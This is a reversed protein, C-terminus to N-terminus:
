GRRRERTARAAWREHWEKFKPQDPLLARAQRIASEIESRPNRLYDLAKALDFWCWAKRIPDDSLQIARYLLEASERNLRLRISRDRASRALGLKTQAFEHVVKPDDPNLTYALTFLRHAGELDGTRKKLVAAEVTDDISQNPPIRNLIEAAEKNRDRNILLRAMTLYPQSAQTKDSQAEFSHFVREALQINGVGFAYEILQSALAGSGPQSQHARELHDIAQSKEGIAWLRASERLANLVQYRPHVPLIVKFYIRDQDFDFRAEPSGNERMKRQIKPIGTGRGEALRLEKLFEGIRRNRAPVPPVVHGPELDEMKIGPAPGPYSIVEMRDPYLYTKVPEPPGDYGRHYVSNVIAEEMAEYPYPVTREVEAQGRIKQLLAGGLNDLYELAGKIQQPLPGRFVREEILDGGADDGFQVVEIRSGSFFQDPDENFFLLGVNRPV